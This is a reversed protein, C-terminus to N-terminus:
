FTYAAGVSFYDIDLEELEFLEYEARVAISGLQIKAGLGYAPDTGSESDGNLESDWAIFGAKGFIGVPGLDFGALGFASWGNSDIKNGTAEAIEGEHSGFDVYAGEVALNLFPVIGLNYGAFVKYASDSDDFSIDGIDPDNESYDMGASGLSAGLYLGSDSGALALNSFSLAATSILLAPLTRM